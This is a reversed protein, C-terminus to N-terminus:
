TATRAQRRTSRPAPASRCRRRFMSRSTSSTTAIGSRSSSAMRSAFPSSTRCPKLFHDIRFIHSEDFAGHLTENLSTASALDIGFPKELIVRAGEALGSTGLVSVIGAFATPPVSLYFLRRAAPGLTAEAAAVADVLTEQSAFSLNAAFRNWAAEPRLHGSEEVAAKAFERFEGDALNGRSTAIIRYREPLLDVQALRFLGPLLKRRALDGTGGFLVIVHDDPVPEAAPKVTPPM